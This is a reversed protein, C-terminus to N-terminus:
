AARESVLPVAIETLFTIAERASSHNIGNLIRIARFVNEPALAEAVRTKGIGVGECAYVLQTIAGIENIWGLKHLERAAAVFRGKPSVKWAEHRTFNEELRRRVEEVDAVEPVCRSMASWSVGGSHHQDRIAQQSAVIAQAEALFPKDPQIDFAM